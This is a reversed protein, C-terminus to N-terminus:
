LTVVAAPVPLGTAADQVRGALAGAPVQAASQAAAGAASLLLAAALALAPRRPLTRRGPGRPAARAPPTPLHPVTTMASSDGPVAVNQRRRPPSRARWVATGAVPGVGDGGRTAARPAPPHRLRLRPADAVREP